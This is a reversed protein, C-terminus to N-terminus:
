ERVYILAGQRINQIYKMNDSAVFTIDKMIGADSEVVMILDIHNQFRPFDFDPSVM